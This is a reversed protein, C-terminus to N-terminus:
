ILNVVSWKYGDIEDTIVSYENLFLKGNKVFTLEKLKVTKLDKAKFLAEKLTWLIFFDSNDKIFGVEEESCVRKIVERRVERIREIDIGVPYDSVACGVYDESHTLSIFLDSNELYPKSSNDFMLWSLDINKFHECILLNLLARACLSQKQKSPTLSNIYGKQESSLLKFTSEIEADTFDSLKCFKYYLM